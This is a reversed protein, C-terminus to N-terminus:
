RTVVYLEYNSGIEKQIFDIGQVDDPDEMALFKKEGEIKFVVANYQRAIREPLVEMVEKPVQKPDLEIFPINAFAAYLQILEKETVVGREIVMSQLSQGGKQQEALLENLKDTPLQGHEILLEKVTEDAIRM